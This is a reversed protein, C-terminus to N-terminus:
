WTKSSSPCVYTSIPVQISWISVKLATVGVEHSFERSTEIPVGVWQDLLSKNVGDVVNSKVKSGGNSLFCCMGFEDARAKM